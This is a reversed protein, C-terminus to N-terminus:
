DPMRVIIKTKSIMDYLGGLMKSPANACMYLIRDTAFSDVAETALCTDVPFQIM